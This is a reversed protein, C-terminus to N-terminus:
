NEKAWVEAAAILGRRASGPLRPWLAMLREWDADPAPLPQEIVPLSQVAAVIPGLVQKTFFSVSREPKEERPVDSRFYMVVYAMEDAYGGWRAARFILWLLLALADSTIGMDNQLDAPLRDAAPFRLATACSGTWQSRIAPETVTEASLLSSVIWDSFPDGAFANFEQNPRTLAVLDVSFAGVPMVPVGCTRLWNQVVKPSPNRQGHEIRALYSRDLHVAVSLQDQTMGHGLRLIRLLPGTLTMLIRRGREFFDLVMKLCTDGTSLLPRPIYVLLFRSVRTLFLLSTFFNSRRNTVILSAAATRPTLLCDSYRAIFRPSIGATCM